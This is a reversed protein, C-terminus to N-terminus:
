KLEGRQLVTDEDVQSIMEPKYRDCRRRCQRDEKCCNAETSVAYVFGALFGYLLAISEESDDAGESLM